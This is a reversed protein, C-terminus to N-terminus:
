GLLEPVAANLAAPCLVTVRRKEMMEFISM